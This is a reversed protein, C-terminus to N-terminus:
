RDPRPPVPLNLRTLRVSEGEFVGGFGRQPQYYALTGDVVHYGLLAGANLGVGLHPELLDQVAVAGADVHDVDLELVYLGRGVDLFGELVNEAGPLFSVGLFVLGTGVLVIYDWPGPTIRLLDPLLGLSKLCDRIAVAWPSAEWNRDMRSSYSADFSTVRWLSYRSAISPTRGPMDFIM